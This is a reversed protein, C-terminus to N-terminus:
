LYNCFRFSFIFDIKELLLNVDLNHTILYYFSVSSHKIRFQGRSLECYLIQVLAKNRLGKLRM